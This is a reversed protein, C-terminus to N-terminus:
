GNQIKKIVERGLNNICYYRRREDTENAPPDKQDILGDDLLSYINHYLTAPLLRSGSEIELKKNLTYGDRLQGDSLVMLIYQKNDTLTVNKKAM